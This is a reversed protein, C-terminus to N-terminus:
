SNRGSQPGGGDKGGDLTPPPLLPEVRLLQTGASVLTSVEVTLSVVKGAQPALIKNEMKMAEIILLVDGKAVVQEEKVLVQIVKGTIPSVINAPKRAQNGKRFAQGPINPQLVVEVRAARRVTGSVLELSGSVSSDDRHNVMHHNRIRVVRELEGSADPSLFIAHLAPHYECRYAAEGVELGFPSGEVVRDPLNIDIKNKNIEAQWRM